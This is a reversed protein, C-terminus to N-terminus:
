KLLNQYAELKKLKEEIENIKFSLQKRTKEVELSNLTGTSSFSSLLSEYLGFMGEKVSEHLLLFALNKKQEAELESSIIKNEFSELYNENKAILNKSRLFSYGILNEQLDNKSDLKEKFSSAKVILDCFPTLLLENKRFLAGNKCIAGQRFLEIKKKYHLERKQDVENNLRRKLYIGFPSELNATNGLFFSKLNRRSVKPNELSHEFTNQSFSLYDIKKGNLSELYPINEVDYLNITNLTSNLLQKDVRNLGKFTFPEHSALILMDVKNTFFLKLHPFVERLNVLISSITELDISYSQVWQAMVGNKALSKSALEYFYKTYLNEVGVTWPNTPESVIVEYKKETRLLFRFADEEHVVVKSNTAADFNAKSFKPMAKVVSHSFEIMDVHKIADLRGLLGGTVGTGIGVVLANKKATNPSYSLPIVGALVTTSLDSLTGSDSKGNVMISLSNPNDKKRVVAATVNPGDELSLVEFNNEPISFFYRFHFSPNYTRNRFFALSHASRDWKSFSIFVLTGLIATVVLNKQGDKWLFFILMLSFIIVNLKYISPIDAFYFFLYSFVVSGIFTGITNTFYLMGCQAGYNGQEKKLIAYAMPLLRGMFFLPPFLFLALFLYLSFHYFYFSQPISSFLVRINTTWLGLYPILQFTGMLLIISVALHIKISSTTVKKLTLSGLGLGLVFLSLVMPFVVNSSGISLGWLRIWIIELSLAVLGSVFALSYVSWEPYQSEVHPLKEAKYIKGELNNLLYVIAVVMNIFGILFSSLFLGLWPIIVFAGLIVGAFAGITNLGYIVSHTRNVSSSDKPLVATMIPITAGMLFTPFLLLLSSVGIDAIISNPLFHIFEKMLNFLSPFLCAFFGTVLEIIGYTKLLEKRSEIKETYRGWFFYGFALGALFIAVIIASSRAESGMIINLYRQWVVQYVLSCAGTITTVVLYPRLGKFSDDKNM